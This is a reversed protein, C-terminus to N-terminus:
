WLMQPLPANGGDLRVQLLTEAMLKAPTLAMPKASRVSGEGYRLDRIGM